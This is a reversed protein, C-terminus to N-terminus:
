VNQKSPDNSTTSPALDKNVSQWDTLFKQAEVEDLSDQQAKNMADITTKLSAKIDEFLKKQGTETDHLSKASNKVYSLFTLATLPSAGEGALNGLQLVNKAFAAGPNQLQRDLAAMSVVERAGDTSLLATLKTIFEQVGGPDSDKLATLAKPDLHSLDVKAM